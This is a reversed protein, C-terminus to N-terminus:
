LKREPCVTSRGNMNLFNNFLFSIKRLWVPWTFHLLGEAERPFVRKCWLLNQTGLCHVFTKFIMGWGSGSIWQNEWGRCKSNHLSERRKQVILNEAFKMKIVDETLSHRQKWIWPLSLVWLVHFNRFTERADSVIWFGSLPGIGKLLFSLEWLSVIHIVSRCKACITNNMLYM